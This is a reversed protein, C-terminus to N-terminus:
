KAVAYCVYDAFNDRSDNRRQQKQSLHMVQLSQQAVLVKFLSVITEPAIPAALHIYLAKLGHRITQLADFIKRYSNNSKIKCYRLEL